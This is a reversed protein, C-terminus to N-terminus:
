GKFEEWRQGQSKPLRPYYLEVHCESENLHERARFVILPSSQRKKKKEHSHSIWVEHPYICDMIFFQLFVTTSLSVYFITDM